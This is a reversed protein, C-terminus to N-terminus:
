SESDSESISELDKEENNKKSNEEIIILETEDDLSMDKKYQAFARKHLKSKLHNELQQIKKFQKNCVKCM